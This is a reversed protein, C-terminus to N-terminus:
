QICAATSCIWGVLIYSANAYTWCCRLALGGCREESGSGHARLYSLCNERDFYTSVTHHQCTLDNDNYRAM